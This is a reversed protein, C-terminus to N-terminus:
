MQPCTDRPGQLLLLVSNGTRLRWSNQILKWVAPDRFHVPRAVCPGCPPRGRLCCECGRIEAAWGGQPVGGPGCCLTRRRAGQHVSHPPRALVRPRVTRQCACTHACVRTCVRPCVAGKLFCLALGQAKVAEKACAWGLAGAPPLEAEWSGSTLSNGRQPFSGLSHTARLSPRQTTLVRLPFAVRGRWKPGIGRLSRELVTKCTLCQVFWFASTDRPGSATRASVPAGSCAPRPSSHSM